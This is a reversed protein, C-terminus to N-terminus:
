LKEGNKRSIVQDRDSTKQCNVKETQQVLNNGQAYGIVTKM